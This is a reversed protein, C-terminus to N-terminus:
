VTLAQLKKRDAITVCGRSLVVLGEKAFYKLMRSVVERASGLEKAIQEHTMFLSSTQARNTETLLFAALRKDFSTFLIQQMTWMIDSFRETALKYIYLEAYINQRTLRSLAAPALQLIECDDAAEISVEFDIASLICSASLVCVDGTEMRYLTIERGEESLISVRVTGSQILLMGMCENDHSHILFGRSFQLKTIHPILAKQEADSLNEWFPLTRRLLSLDQQTLM